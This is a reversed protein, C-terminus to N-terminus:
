EFRIGCSYFYVSVLPFGQRLERTPKFFNTVDGNILIAFSTTVYCMIQRVLSLTFGYKSLMYFILILILMGYTSLGLIAIRFKYTDSHLIQQALILLTLLTV